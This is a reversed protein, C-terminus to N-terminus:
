KQRFTSRRQLLAGHGISTGKDDLDGLAVFKNRTTVQYQEKVEEENLKKLNYREMGMKQATQKSVALGDRVEAAVL